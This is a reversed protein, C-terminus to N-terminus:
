KYIQTTYKSRNLGYNNIFKDAFKSWDIEPYAIHHANFNGVAGGFKAYLKTNSLSEFQIELREVFVMMEKGLKTPSAPQGHTQSLLPIHNWKEALTKLSTIINTINPLILASM